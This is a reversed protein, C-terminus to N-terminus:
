RRRTAGSALDSILNIGARKRERSQDPQRATRTVRIFQAPLALAPYAGRSVGAGPVFLLVPCFVPSARYPAEDDRGWGRRPSFPVGPRLPSLPVAPTRCVHLAERWRGKCHHLRYDVLRFFTRAIVTKRVRPRARRLLPLFVHGAPPFWGAPILHTTGSTLVLHSTGPMLFGARPLSRTEAHAFPFPGSRAFGPLRLASTARLRLFRLVM